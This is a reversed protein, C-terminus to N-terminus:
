YELDYRIEGLDNDCDGDCRKDGCAPCEDYDQAYTKFATDPTGLTDVFEVIMKQMKQHPQLTGAAWQLVVAEDVSFEAALERQYLKLCNTDAVLQIFDTDNM